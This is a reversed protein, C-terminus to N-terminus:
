HLETPTYCLTDDHTVSRNKVTFYLRRSIYGYRSNTPDFYDWQLVSVFINTVDSLIQYLM